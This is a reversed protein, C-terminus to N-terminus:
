LLASISQHLKELDLSLQNPGPMLLYCSYSMYHYNGPIQRNHKKTSTVVLIMCANRPKHHLIYMENSHCCHCSHTHKIVNSIRSRSWFLNSVNRPEAKGERRRGGWSLKEVHPFYKDQGREPSRTSASKHFASFFVSQGWNHYTLEPPSCSMMPTPHFSTPPLCFTAMTRGHAFVPKPSCPKFLFKYM